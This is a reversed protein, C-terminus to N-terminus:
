GLATLAETVQQRYRRVNELKVDDFGRIQDALDAIEVARDFTDVRLGALLTFVLERYERILEVEIQREESKGFPDMRTGRLRKTKLLSSFTKRAVKSPMAIKKDFGIKKLSPPKLQYSLVANPGFLEKAKAEMDADLALRAVEYEDKYTM